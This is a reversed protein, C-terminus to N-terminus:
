EEESEEEETSSSTTHRPPPQGKLIAIQEELTEIKKVQQRVRSQLKQYETGTGSGSGLSSIESATKEQANRTVYVWKAIFLTSTTIIAGLFSCVATFMFILQTNSETVGVALRIVIALVAFFATNYFSFAIVKSEDYVSYPITRIRWALWSGWVFLGVAYACNIIFLVVTATPFPCVYSNLSVKFPDVINIKPNLPAVSTMLISLVIQIAMIIAIVLAVQSNPIVLLNLGRSNYLRDIRFTKAILSGFMLMFGMPLLWTRARCMGLSVLGPMWTVISIQVILSGLLLALLFVPSAARIARDKWNYVVFGMWFLSTAIGIACLVAGAIETPKGWKPDFIREKWSPIPYILQSTSALAPGNIRDVGFATQVSLADITQRGLVDFAALGMFSPFNTDFPMREAVLDPNTSNIQVFLNTFLLGALTAKAADSTAPIGFIRSYNDNYDASTGFQVQAPFNADKHYYLPQTVFEFVSLDTPNEPAQSILIANPTYDRRKFENLIWEIAASSECLVLVDSNWSIFQDVAASLSSIDAASLEALTAATKTEGGQYIHRVELANFAAQNIFGQCTESRSTTNYVTVTVAQALRLEPLSSLLVRTAATVSSYTNELNSWQTSADYSSMMMSKNGINDERIEISLNTGVPGFLFDVSDSKM